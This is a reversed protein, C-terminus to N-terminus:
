ACQALHRLTSLLGSPYGAFFYPVPHVLVDGTALLKDQPLYAWADGLTDGQGVHRIEVPRNGLDINIEGDFTLMPLELHFDSALEKSVASSGRIAERLEKLETASLPKGDDNKASEIAAKMKALRAPSRQLNAADYTAM